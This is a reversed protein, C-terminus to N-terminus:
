FPLASSFSLSYHSPTLTFSLPFSGVGFVGVLPPLGLWSFWSFVGFGCVPLHSHFRHSAPLLPILPPFPGPLVLPCNLHPYSPYSPLSPAPCSPPLLSFSIRPLPPQFPSLPPASPKTFSNLFHSTSAFTRNVRVSLGIITLTVM